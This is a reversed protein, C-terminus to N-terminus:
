ADLAQGLKGRARHLIQRVRERTVAFRQGIQELPFSDPEGFGYYMRVIQEERPTLRQLLRQLGGPDQEALKTILQHGRKVEPPATSAIPKPRRRRRTGSATRALEALAAELIKRVAQGSRGLRCGIEEFTMPKGDIGYRMQVTQKRQPVLDALLGHLRDPDREQLQRVLRDGHKADDSTGPAIAKVSTRQGIGTSTGALQALARHLIKRVGQHSLRFHPAIREFSYPIRQDIGYYMRVIREDRPALTALLERLRHRDRELLEAVLQHGCKTEASAKPAIVKLGHSEM